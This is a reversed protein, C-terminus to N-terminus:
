KILLMRKTENYTETELKYFYAGSSLKSGDFSIEYDGISRYGNELIKILKGNVDYISLKIHTGKTIEYKIRTTPNFPNPYNQYLKFDKPFETVYTGGNNINVVGNENYVYLGGGAIWLNGFNDFELSSVVAYKPLPSNNYDFYTYTSDSSKFFSFGVHGAAKNGSKFDVAGPIIYAGNFYLDWNNLEDDFRNMGGLCTIWKINDPTIQIKNVRNYVLGSNTSNYITWTTDELRVLGRAHTGIWKVNNELAVANIIQWPLQSNGPTYNTFSNTKFDLISVGRVGGIIAYQGASVDISMYPGPLINSNSTDYVQCSIGDFILISIFGSKNVIAYLVGDEDVSIGFISNQPLPSNSTDYHTWTNNQFKSLGGSDSIRGVWVVNNISDIALSIANPSPLQSTYNIWQPNQAELANATLLAIAIVVITNRTENTKDKSMNLENM